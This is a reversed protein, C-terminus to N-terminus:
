SILLLIKILITKNCVFKNIFVCTAPRVKQYMYVRKDVHIFKFPYTIEDMM